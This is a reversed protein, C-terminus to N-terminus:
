KKHNSIDHKTHEEIEHNIDEEEDAQNFPVVGFFEKLFINIAGITLLIPLLLNWPIEFQVTVFAGVFVIISIFMDYIRGMLFQRLALPIGMVLMIGPWWKNLITLIIVGLVFLLFSFVLAKRVSTRARAM